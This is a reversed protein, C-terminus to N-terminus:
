PAFGAAKILGTLDEPLSAFGPAHTEIWQRLTDPVADWGPVRYSTLRIMVPGRSVGKTSPETEAFESRAAAQISSAARDVTWRYELVSMGKESDYSASRLCFLVTGQRDCEIAGPITRPAAKADPMGLRWVLAGNRFTYANVGTLAEPNKGPYAVLVEDTGLARYLLVARTIHFTTGPESVSPVAIAVEHGELRAVTDGSEIDYAKGTSVRHILEGGGARGWVYDDFDAQDMATAEVAMAIGVCAVACSLLKRAILTKEAPRRM